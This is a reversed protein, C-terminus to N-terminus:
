LDTTSIRSQYVRVFIDHIRLVLFFFVKVRFPTDFQYPVFRIRIRLETTSIRSDPDRGFNDCTRLVLLCFVKRGGIPTDFPVLLSLYMHSLLIM